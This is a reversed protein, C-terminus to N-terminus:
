EPASGGDEHHLLMGVYYIFTMPTTATVTSNSDQVVEFGSPQQRRICGTLKAFKIMATPLSALFVHQLDYPQQGSDM